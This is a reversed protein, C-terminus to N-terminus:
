YEKFFFLLFYSFISVLAFVVRLLFSDSVDIFAGIAFHMKKQSLFSYFCQGFWMQGLFVGWFIKWDGWLFLLNLFSSAIMVLLINYRSKCLFNYLETM